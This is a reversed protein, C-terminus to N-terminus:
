EARRLWEAELDSLKRQAEERRETLDQMKEADKWADPQGLDKDIEHVEVELATIRKELEEDKLRALPNSAQNPKPAPSKSAEPKRPLNRQKRREAEEREQAAARQKRVEAEHWETYGGLFQQANGEGDLILLHDCTADILARDHSILILTGEFGLSGDEDPISLAEELRESSPIDLHNTPEDLVLVNKASALLSALVARTREGGSLMGMQRDQESGSFLFAGALNRAQQESLAQGPVERLIVDQLFRYVPVEAPLNEHTQRFYGVKVNTGLRVTGTDPALENLLCKVLTSKGAGNPGLIGWREGRAVVLDLDKFLTKTNGHEDTYAKSLGRAAIVVDGTREAKPLTLKFTGLEAPRELTSSLKERDLKSLRGQAQRARQGAKYRRIFEEEKKFRTQQADFARQMVLRRETRLARFAEYNGPYDILRSQEVEIIRNVVNDLLYRDHSILVVAGKYEDRLFSELWLRGALDLHNTPEDLFVIDPQELLLKALSLRARQGGSLKSVPISFQADIFGLGHLVEEIKHDTVYGGAAEIDAELKAQQKMLRDLADGTATAMQDYVDHMADHLRRLEAFADEAAQRLTDTPKLNPEQSLHGVRAGRQVVVEGRDPKLLGTLIRILTSKGAGNRGVIGIRDTPEISLSVGDLIVREGYSHAINTAALVPMPRPTYSHRPPFHGTRPRQSAPVATVGGGRHEGLEGRTRDTRSVVGILPDLPRPALIWAKEM